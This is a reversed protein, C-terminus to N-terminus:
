DWESYFLRGKKDWMCCVDEDSCWMWADVFDNLNMTGDNYFCFREVEKSQINEAYLWVNAHIVEIKNVHYMGQAPVYDECASVPIACFVMLLIFLLISKKM